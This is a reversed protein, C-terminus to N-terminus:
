KMQEIMSELEEDSKNAFEPLGKEESLMEKEPERQQLYQKGLWVLMGTNGKKAAAIQWRRLLTKLTALNTKHIRCFEEDRQLTRVSLGLVDAIEEQTCHISALRKVLNYDIEKKKRGTKAL